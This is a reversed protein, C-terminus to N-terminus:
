TGTEIYLVSLSISPETVYSLSLGLLWFTIDYSFSDSRLSKKSECFFFVACIAHPFFSDLLTSNILNDCVIELMKWALNNRLHVCCFRNQTAVNIRGVSYSILATAWILLRQRVVPLMQFHIYHEYPFM